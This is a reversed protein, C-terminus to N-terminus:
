TNNNFGAFTLSKNPYILKQIYLRLSKARNTWKELLSFDISPETKLKNRTLETGITTRDNTFGRIVSYSDSFHEKGMALIM